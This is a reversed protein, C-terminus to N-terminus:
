NIDLKANQWVLVARIHAVIRARAEATIVEQDHPPDWNVLRQPFIQFGRVALMESDVHVAHDGETYLMGVFGLIEVSFGTDSVYLNVRPSTITM